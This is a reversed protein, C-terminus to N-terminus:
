GSGCVFKKINVLVKTNVVRTFILFNKSGTNVLNTFVLTDYDCDFSPHASKSILFFVRQFKLPTPM